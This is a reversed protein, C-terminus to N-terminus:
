QALDALATVTLPLGRISSAEFVTTGIEHGVLWSVSGSLQLHQSGFEHVGFFASPVNGLREVNKWTTRCRSMLIPEDNGPLRVKWTLQVPVSGEFSVIKVLSGGSRIEYEWLAHTLKEVIRVGKVKSKRFSSLDFNCAAGSYIEMPSSFPQQLPHFFSSRKLRAALPDEKEVKLESVPRWHFKDGVRLVDLLNAADAVTGDRGDDMMSQVLCVRRVANEEADQAWIMHGCRQDIDPGGSKLPFAQTIDISLVGLIRDVRNPLTEIGELWAGIEGEIEPSPSQFQESDPIEIFETTDSSYGSVSSLTTVVLCVAFVLKM